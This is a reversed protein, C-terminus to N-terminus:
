YGFRGVDVDGPLEAGEILHECFRAASWPANMVGKPGLGNFIGLVPHSHHFGLVPRRDRTTPRVGAQHDVIEYTVQTLEGLEKEIKQRATSTPLMTFDSWDFTAGVKIRDNGVPLMWVGLNPIVQQPLEKSTITLLEGKTNAFPLGRFWPNEAGKFGECFILKRATLEGLKVTDAGIELANYDVTGHILLQKDSLFQKARELFLPVDLYGSGKVIGFGKPFRLQIGPLEEGNDDALYQEYGPEGSKSHWDNEQERAPFVRAIPKFHFFTAGFESEWHRYFREMEPLLEDVRWSKNLKRFVIPNWMGAAVMSSSTEHGNDIVLVKQGRRILELALVTGAIGQGAILFDTEPM